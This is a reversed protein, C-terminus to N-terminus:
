PTGEDVQGDHRNALRKFAITQIDYPIVRLSGDAFGANFGGPHASGFIYCNCPLEGRANFQNNVPSDNRVLEDPNNDSYPWAFRVGEWESGRTWPFNDGYSGGQYANRPVYKEALLMTHSSGDTIQKM